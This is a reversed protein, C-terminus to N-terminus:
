FGFRFQKTNTLKGGTKGPAGIDPMDTNEMSWSHRTLGPTVVVERIRNGQRVEKIDAGLSGNAVHRPEGRHRRAEEMDARSPALGDDAKKVPARKVPRVAVPAAKDPMPPPPEVAGANMAAALAAIAILKIRM